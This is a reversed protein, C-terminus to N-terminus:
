GATKWTVRVSEPDFQNHGGHRTAPLVSIDLLLDIVGRKRALPLSEWRKAIDPGALDVLHPASSSGPDVM